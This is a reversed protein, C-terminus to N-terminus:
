STMGVGETPNVQSAAPKDAPRESKRMREEAKKRAEEQVVEADADTEAKAAAPAIQPLEVAPIPGGLAGLDAWIPFADRTV